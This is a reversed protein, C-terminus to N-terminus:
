STDIIRIYFIKTFIYLLCYSSIFNGDSNFLDIQIGAEELYTSIALEEKKGFTQYAVKM